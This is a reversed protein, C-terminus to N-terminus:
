WVKDCFQTPQHGGGPTQGETRSMLGLEFNLDAVERLNQGILQCEWGEWPSEPNM